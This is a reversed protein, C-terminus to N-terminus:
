KLKPIKKRTLRDVDGKSIFLMRFYDVGEGCFIIAGDDAFVEGRQAIVIYLVLDYM